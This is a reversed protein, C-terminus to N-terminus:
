LYNSFFTVNLKEYDFLCVKGDDFIYWLSNEQNKILSVYHGGTHNVIAYLNYRHPIEDSLLYQPIDVPNNRRRIEPEENEVPIVEFRLLLVFIFEAGKKLIAQQTANKSGCHSCEFKYDQLPNVAFFNYISSELHVESEPNDEPLVIPLYFIDQKNTTQSEICSNSCQLIFDIESYFVGSFINTPIEVFTYDVFEQLFESSDHGGPQSYM